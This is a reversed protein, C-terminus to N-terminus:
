DNFTLLPEVKWINQEGYFITGYEWLKFCQEVQWEWSKFFRDDNVIEPHYGQNIQCLGYDYFGNVGVLGGKRLPDVTGNEAVLLKVFTKDGTTNYAYSLIKNVEDGCGKKKVTRAYKKLYDKDVCHFHSDKEELPAVGASYNYHSECKLNFTEIYRLSAELDPLDRKVIDVAACDKHELSIQGSYSGCINTITPYQPYILMANVFNKIGETARPLEDRLVNEEAKKNAKYTATYRELLKADMKAISDGIEPKFSLVANPFFTGLIASFMLICFITSLIIKKASDVDGKEYMFNGYEDKRRKSQVWKIYRKTLEIAKLTLM